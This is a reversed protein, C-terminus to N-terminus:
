VCIFTNIKIMYFMTCCFVSKSDMVPFTPGTDPKERIIEMPHAKKQTQKLQVVAIEFQIKPGLLKSIFLTLQVKILNSQMHGHM